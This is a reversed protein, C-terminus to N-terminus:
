ALRGDPHLHEVEQRMKQIGRVGSTWMAGQIFGLWLTVKETPWPEANELLERIMWRLHGLSNVGDALDEVREPTYRELEADYRRLLKDMAETM